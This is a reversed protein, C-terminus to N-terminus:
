VQTGKISYRGTNEDSFQYGWPPLKCAPTHIGMEQVAVKRTNAGQISRYNWLNTECTHEQTETYEYGHTGEVGCMKM